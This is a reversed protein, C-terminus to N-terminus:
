TENFITLRVGISFFTPTAGRDLNFGSLFPTIYVEHSM